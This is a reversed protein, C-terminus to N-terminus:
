SVFRLRWDRQRERSVPTLSRGLVRSFALLGVVCGSAFVLIYPFNFDILAQLIFEYVGLLILVFAGSLGPLIMACIAIAGSVFVYGFSLSANAPNIFGVWIAVSMGTLLAILNQWKRFNFNDKLLWLSALVLGIFFAMLPEFYNELLFLVTNTSILLGSFIGATLILLFNGNIHRWFEAFRGALLLKCAALDIARISFILQDYINTIVAITGGSVGPVSDGLGM